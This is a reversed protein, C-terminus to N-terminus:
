NYFFNELKNILKDKLNTKNSIIRNLSRVNYNSKVQNIFRINKNYFFVNKENKINEDIAEIKSIQFNHKKLFLKVESITDINEYLAKKKNIAAELIGKKVINIKKNLGKLVKLDNGQTDIHLYNIQNVQNDKCYKDLTIGKVKIKKIFTCHANRYGPWTKDINKSFKYLSSVTPNKAINFKFFKNKDSVAFNNIKYNKIKINKFKEIKKKNRKIIKILEPNAEFAHVKMNKNKIALILGDLGNFAGVDFIHEKYKM